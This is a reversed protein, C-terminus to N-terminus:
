PKKPAIQVNGVIPGQAQIHGAELDVNASEARMELHNARFLIPGQIHIDNQNARYISKSGHIHAGGKEELITTTLTMTEHEFDVLAKPSKLTFLIEDSTKDKKNLVLNEIHAQDLDGESKTGQGIWEINNQQRAEIFVDNLSFTKHPIQQEKASINQESCAGLCLAMNFILWVLGTSSPWKLRTYHWAKIDKSTYRYLYM